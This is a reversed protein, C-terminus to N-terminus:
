ARTNNWKKKINIRYSSKNRDNWHIYRDGKLRIDVNYSKNNYNIKAKYNNFEFTSNNAIKKENTEKIVKQRESEIKNYEKQSIELFIKDVKTFHGKIKFLLVSPLKSYNLIGYAEMRPILKIKYYNWFGSNFFIISVSFFIFITSFFYYKYFYYFRKKKNKKIKKEGVIM